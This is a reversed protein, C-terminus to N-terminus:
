PMLRTKESGQLWVPIIMIELASILGLKTLCSALIARLVQRSSFLCSFDTLVLKSCLVILFCVKAASFSDKTEFDSLLNFNLPMQAIDGIQDAVNGYYRALKASPMYAETMMIRPNSEDEATADDLVKRFKKLLDLVEPLDYTKDHTLSQYDGGSNGSSQEDGNATDEFFHGVSDVRFGDVGLSVWFKLSETLDNVVDDNRLNLDPQHSYFQHLYYQGRTSDKTWASGGFVSKWNNPPGNGKGDAWVYYDAYKGDKSKSKEFWEHQDSSHNPIFDMIVKMDRKHLEAVLTKFDELTGFTPDIATYDSVDYGNDKMPSKYVPSLWVSGVGLNALYDLESTVGKLDGVGDGDSDKFSKVYVEYVPKKQWWSKPNPSPCKEAYIIIVVSAVLMGVWALWFLVFLGWRLKVWTPDSAYKMLESKTLAPKIGKDAAAPGGQELDVTQNGGIFKVKPDGSAAGANLPETEPDMKAAAAAANSAATEAENPPMKEDSSEEATM